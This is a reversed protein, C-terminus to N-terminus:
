AQEGGKKFKVLTVCAILLTFALLIVPLVSESGTVPNNDDGIIEQEAKSGFVVLETLEGNDTNVSLAAANPKLEYGMSLNTSLSKTTFLYPESLKLAGDDNEIVLYIFEDAGSIFDIGIRGNTGDSSIIASPAGVDSAAMPNVGDLSLFVRSNSKKLSEVTLGFTYQYQKKVPLKIVTTKGKEVEATLGKTDFVNYYHESYSANNSYNLTGPKLEKLLIDDLYIDPITKGGNFTFSLQTQGPKTTFRISRKVWEDREPMGSARLVWTNSWDYYVAFYTVSGTDKPVYIYYSFEYLTNEKCPVTFVPDRYQTVASYNAVANYTYSGGKLYTAKTIKGDREPGDVISACAIDYGVYFDDFNILIEDRPETGWGLFPEYDTEILTIDDIWMDPTYEGANVYFSLLNQETTTTVTYECYLWENRKATHQYSSVMNAKGFSAYIGIWEGKTAESPLTQSNTKVRFSLKYVTKPKVGVTFVDDTDTLFTSNYNLTTASDYAGKIFHLMKSPKGDYAEAEVIEIRDKPSVTANGGYNDFDIVIKDKPEKGPVVPVADPDEDTEVVTFDDVYLVFGAGFTLCMGFYLDTTTARFLMSYEHWQGAEGAFIAGKKLYEAPSNSNMATGGKVIGVQNVWAKSSSGVTSTTPAFYKFSVKYAKDKVLDNLKVATYQINGNIKISNAGGNYTYTKDTNNTNKIWGNETPGNGNVTPAYNAHYLKWSAADDYDSPGSPEPDEGPGPEEGEGPGPGPDPTASGETVAFEDLYITFGGAFTAYLTFFLDTTADTTFELNYTNWSGDAPSAPTTAKSGAALYEAPVAGNMATGKKVVGPTFWAKSSSGWTAGKAIMYKFSITYKTNAKLVPMKVANLVTNGYLKVSEGSGTSTFATNKNITASAWDRKAPATGDITAYGVYDGKATPHYLGWNAIDEFPDPEVEKKTLTFEDLYITFGGAFTGYLTFFLDTTDDTSFELTYTNWSGDSPSAPTTAKSGAVLYEAPVAGNMAAGKKVIGPTFWAKSSSGWTADKAVLYKFSLTYDTNAEVGTLKVANTVTNGYLKVSKGSGTSTFATNTNITASAWDRKAPATGDITAYGAYDGKATPHYLGWNAIDEFPDAEPVTEDPIEVDPVTATLASVTVYDIYAKGAGGIFMTPYNCSGDAADAKLTFDYSFEQWEDGASLTTSKYSIPNTAAHTWASLGDTVGHMYFKVEGSLLKYKFTVKFKDGKNVFETLVPLDSSAPNLIVRNSGETIAAGDATGDYQLAKTGSVSTGTPTVISLAGVFESKTKTYDEFDQIFYTAKEKETLTIADIFCEYGAAFAFRFELMYDTTTDTTFDVSLEKWDSTETGKGLDAVFEAPGSKGSNFATGKKIIHSTFYAGNSAIASTAGPKYKFSLTYKTNAKLVPLNAAINVTNGNIRVSKGTSDADQATNNTISMWGNKTQHSEGDYNTVVTYNADSSSAAYIGWNSLSEFDFEQTLSFDDVYFTDTGAQVLLKLTTNDGSNFKITVQNWAGEALWDTTRNAISARNAFVGNPATYAANTAMYVVYGDEGWTLSGDPVVIGTRVLYTDFGNSAYKAGSALFRYSLTYDKNKEVEFEVTSMQLKASIKVSSTDGGYTYATNTNSTVSGWTVATGDDANIYKTNFAYREWNAPNEFVNEAGSASVGGILATTIGSVLICLTLVVALLKKM